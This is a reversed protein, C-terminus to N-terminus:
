KATITLYTEQNKSDSICGGTSQQTQLILKRVEVRDTFYVDEQM